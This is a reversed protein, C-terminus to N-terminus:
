ISSEYIIVSVGFYMTHSEGEDPYVRSVDIQDLTPFKEHFAYEIDDESIRTNKTKFAFRIENELSWGNKIDTVCEDWLEENCDIEELGKM